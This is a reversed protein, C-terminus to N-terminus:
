CLKQVLGDAHRGFLAILVRILQQATQVLEDPQGVGAHGKHLAIKSILRSSERAAFFQEALDICKEM